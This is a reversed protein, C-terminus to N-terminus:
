QRFSHLQGETSGANRRSTWHIPEHSLRFADIKGDSKKPCNETFKGVLGNLLNRGDSVSFSGREEAFIDALAAYVSLCM